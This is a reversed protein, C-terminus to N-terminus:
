RSGKRWFQGGLNLPTDQETKHIIKWLGVESIKGKANCFEITYSAVSSYDDWDDKLLFFCAKGKPIDPRQAPKGYKDEGVYFKM